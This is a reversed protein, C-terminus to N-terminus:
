LKSGKTVSSRWACHDKQYAAFVVVGQKVDGHRQVSNDQLVGVSSVQFCQVTTASCRELVPVKNVAGTDRRVLM